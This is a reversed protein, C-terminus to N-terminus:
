AYRNAYYGQWDNRDQAFKSVGNNGEYTGTSFCPIIHCDRLIHQPDIFGFAGEDDFRRFRLLDLKGTAWGDDVPGTLTEFWQVWIFEMRYAGYERKGYAVGGYIVNAHYIGLVCAYRFEHENGHQPQSLLLVDRHDTRPNIISQSRRMDYSTYNIKM